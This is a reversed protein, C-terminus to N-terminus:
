LKADPIENCGDHDVSNGQKSKQVPKVIDMAIRKFPEEIVPRSILPANKKTM